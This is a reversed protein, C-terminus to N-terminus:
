LLCKIIKKSTRNNKFIRINDIFPEFDAQTLIQWRGGSKNNCQHVICVALKCYTKSFGADSETIHIPCCYWEGAIRDINGDINRMKTHIVYM